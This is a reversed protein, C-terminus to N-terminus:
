PAKFRRRDFYTLVSESLSEKIGIMKKFITMTVAWFREDEKSGYQEKAITKARNWKKEAEEPPIGAKKAMTKLAATPM